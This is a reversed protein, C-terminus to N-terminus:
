LTRTAAVPMRRQVLVTLRGLGVAEDIAIASPTEPALRAGRVTTGHRSGLDTITLVEGVELRAHRRSLSPEDVCIACGPDRGIVVAGATPLAFTALGGAGGLVVLRPRSAVEALSPTPPAPTRSGPNRM